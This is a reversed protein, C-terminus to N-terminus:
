EKTILLIRNNKYHVWIHSGSRGFEYDPHYKKTFVTEFDEMLIDFIDESKNSSRSTEPSNWFGICQLAMTIRELSGIKEEITVKLKEM